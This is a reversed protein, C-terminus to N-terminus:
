ESGKLIRTLVQETMTLVQQTMNSLLIYLINHVILIPSLMSGRVRSIKNLGM